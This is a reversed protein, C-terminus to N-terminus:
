PHGARVPRVQQRRVGNVIGNAAAWAIADSYWQGDDVDAFGSPADVAPSGAMRYLVTVLM